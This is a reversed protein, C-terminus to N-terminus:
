CDGWKAASVSVMAEGVQDDGLNFRFLGLKVRIELPLGEGYTAIDYRGPDYEPVETRRPEDAADFERDDENYKDWFYEDRRHLLWRSASKVKSLATNFETSTTSNMFLEAYINLDSWTFRGITGQDLSQFHAISIDYQEIAPASQGLDIYTEALRRLVGTDHPLQKLLRIYDLSARRSNGAERHLSAREFRAEVHLRFSDLVRNYCYIADQLASSRKDGAVEMILKGVKYWLETDNPRTHAGNFLATMARAKDNRAMHIESLLSYATFIEPNLQIAQKALDEAVSYRQDLFAM